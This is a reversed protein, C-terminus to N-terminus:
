FVMTAVPVSHCGSLSQPPRQHLPEEASTETKHLSELTLGQSKERIEVERRRHCGGTVSLATFHPGGATSGSMQVQLGPTGPIGVRADAGVAPPGRPELKGQVSGRGGGGLRSKRPGKPSTLLFKVKWTM